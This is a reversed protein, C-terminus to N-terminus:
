TLERAPRTLHQSRTDQRHFQATTAPRTLNPVGPTLNPPPAKTSSDGFLVLEDLQLVPTPGAYLWPRYPRVHAREM